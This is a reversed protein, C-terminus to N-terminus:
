LKLAKSISNKILNFSINITIETIDNATVPTDEL